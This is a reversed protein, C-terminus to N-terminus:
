YGASGRPERRLNQYYANETTENPSQSVSLSKLTFIFYHLVYIDYIFLIEFRM